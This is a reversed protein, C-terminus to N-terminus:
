AVDREKAQNNITNSHETLCVYTSPVVNWLFYNMRM